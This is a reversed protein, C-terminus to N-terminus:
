WRSHRWAAPGSQGLLTADVRDGRARACFWRSGVARDARARDSLRGEGTLLTMGCRAVGGAADWRAVAHYGSVAWESAKRKERRLDGGDRRDSAPRWAWLPRAIAVLGRQYPVPGGAGLALKGMKDEGAGHGGHLAKNGVVALRAPRRCGWLLRDGHSRGAQAPCPLWSCRAAPASLWSPWPGRLGVLSHTTRACCAPRTPGTCSPRPLIRGM